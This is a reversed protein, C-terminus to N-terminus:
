EGRISRVEWPANCLPCTDRKAIWKKICHTHYGHSCMSWTLDCRAASGYVGCGICGSLLSEHCIACTETSSNWSWIAVATADTVTFLPEQTPPLPQFYKDEENPPTTQNAIIPSVLTSGSSGSTTTQPPLTTISALTTPQITSM